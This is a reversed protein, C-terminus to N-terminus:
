PKRKARARECSEAAEAAPRRPKMLSHEEPLRTPRARAIVEFNSPDIGNTTLVEDPLRLASDPAALLWARALDECSVHDLVARAFAESGPFGTLLWPQGPAIGGLAYVTGPHQGTLDIIPDGLTFGHRRAPGVLATLYNATASAVRLKANAPGIAMITNQNFLSTPARYPRSVGLILLLSAAAATAISLAALPQEFRSAVTRLLAVGAGTWFVSAGVVRWWLSNNTGLAFAFPMAALLLALMLLRGSKPKLARGRQETFSAAAVGLVIGLAVLGIWLSQMRVREFPLPLQRLLLAGAIFAVVVVCAVRLAILKRSGQAFFWGLGISGILTGWYTRQDDGELSLYSRDLLHSMQYAPDLVLLLDHGRTLRSIFELPSGDIILMSALLLAAAICAAVLMVLFRRPVAALTFLAVMLGLAAGSTPKAMATLWGGFGILVAGTLWVPRSASRMAVVVGIITILMGQLTLSNYNPTPVWHHLAALSATALGLAYAALRFLPIENEPRSSRLLVWMLSFSLLFSFAVNAQRLSAIDGGLLRYLPHYLFGFLSISTDYLWPWTISHLYLGEDSLELGRTAYHLTVSLLIFALGAAFVACIWQEIEDLNSLSQTAFRAAARTLAEQGM